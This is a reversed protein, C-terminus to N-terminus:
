GAEERPICTWRADLWALDVCTEPDYRPANGWAVDPLVFLMLAFASLATVGAFIAADTRGHLDALFSMCSLVAAVALLVIPVIPSV